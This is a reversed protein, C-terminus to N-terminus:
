AAFFAFSQLFVSVTQSRGVVVAGIAHKANDASMAWFDGDGIRM